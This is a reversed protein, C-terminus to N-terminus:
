QRAKSHPVCAWTCQGVTRMLSLIHCYIASPLGHMDAVFDMTHVNDQLRVTHVPLQSLGYLEAGCGGQVATPHSLNEPM